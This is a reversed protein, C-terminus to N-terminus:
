NYTCNEYNEGKIDYYNLKKEQIILTNKPISEKIVTGAAIVCNDGITTGKLIVANAGIWVNKGIIVQETKFKKSREGGIAHDHDYICVNPGITVGDGLTINKQSVINCNRNIYVNDGISIRGGSSRIITGEDIICKNGIEVFGSYLVKIRVNPSLMEILTFKIRGLTIIWILPMRVLNYIIRFGWELKRSM